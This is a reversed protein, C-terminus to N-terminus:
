YVTLTNFAAGTQYNGALDTTSLEFDYVGIPLTCRFSCSLLTNIPQQGLTLQKVTRGYRDRVSIWVAATPSGTALDDVRYKITATEGQRVRSPWDAVPTPPHRDAGITGSILTEEGLPASCVIEVDYLGDDPLPLTLSPAFATWESWDGDNVRLRMRQALRVALTAEVDGTNVWTAGGAFLLLPVPEYVGTGLAIDIPSSYGAAAIDLHGDGDVDGVELYGPLGPTTHLIFTGDGQGLLVDFVADSVTVARNVVIDAIGDENLDGSTISGGAPMVNAPLLAGDGTGLLVAVADTVVDLHGDGNLDTM